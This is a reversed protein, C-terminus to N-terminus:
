FGLRRLFSGFWNKSVKSAKEAVLNLDGNEEFGSLFKFGEFNDPQGTLLVDGVKVNKQSSFGLDFVPNANESSKIWYHRTYQVHVPIERAKTNLMKMKEAGKLKSDKNIKYPNWKKMTQKLIDASQDFGPLPERYDSTNMVVTILQRDKGMSDTIGVFVTGAGESSGNKGGLYRVGSKKLHDNACPITSKIEDVKGDPHTFSVTKRQMVEKIQPYDNFVKTAIIALDQASATSEDTDKVGKLGEKEMESNDLGAANIFKADTIGWSKVKQNMMKSFNANNGAVKNGLAIATANTSVDIMTDFLDGVRYEEGAQLEVNTLEKNRSISATNEDIKIKDDWKLKGNDIEELIIYATVLKSVSAVPMTEKSNKEALIQGTTADSVLASKAPVKLTLPSGNINETKASAISGAFVSLVLFFTIIKNILKNM